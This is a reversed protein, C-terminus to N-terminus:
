ESILLKGHKFIVAMYLVTTAVIKAQGAPKGGGEEKQLCVSGWFQLTPCTVM